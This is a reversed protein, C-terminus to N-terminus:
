GPVIANALLALYDERDVEIGGLSKLHPTLWQTDLLEAGDANLQDVLHALAVKSADTATHFMSEGAFFRNIRIGYLGGVLEGDLYTEVSHAWGLEALRVYANVFETTIWRGDRDPDACHEMVERFATNVRVEYKRRSTRLSKSVILGDLPIIGRPDPSYWAIKSRRQRQDVPMPFLGTRYAALLTGPELDAGLAVVDQGPECAMPDPLVYPTPPPERQEGFGGM